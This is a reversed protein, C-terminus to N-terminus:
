YFQLEIIIIKFILQFIKQFEDKDQLAHHKEIIGIIIKLDTGSVETVEIFSLIITYVDKMKKVLADAEIKNKAYYLNERM